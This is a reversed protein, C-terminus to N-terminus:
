VPASSAATGTAAGGRWPPARRSSPPSTGLGALGGSAHRKWVRQGFACSSQYWCSGGSSLFPVPVRAAHWQGSSCSSSASSPRRAAPHAVGALLRLLQQPLQDAEVGDVGGAG